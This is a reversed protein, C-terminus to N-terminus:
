EKIHAANPLLPMKHKRKFQPNGWLSGQTQLVVDDPVTSLFREGQFSCVVNVPNNPARGSLFKLSKLYPCSRLDIQQIQPPVNKLEEGKKFESITKQTKAVPDIAIIESNYYNCAAWYIKNDIPSWCCSQSYQPSLGTEVIPESTKGTTKDLLCVDGYNDIVYLNGNGDACMGYFSDDLPCLVTYTKTEPDFTSLTYKYGTADYNISYVVNNVADYTMNVAANAYTQEPEYVTKDGTETDVIILKVSNFNGYFEKLVSVYFKGDAYVAGGNGDGIEPILVKPSYEGTAPNLEYLGYKKDNYSWDDCAILAGFLREPMAGAATM